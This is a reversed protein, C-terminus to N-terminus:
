RRRSMREILVSLIIVVGVATGQWFANVRLLNLGNNLIGILFVGILTGYLSGKGASSVPARRDRGRRDDSSWALAPTRTSREWNAPSFSPPWRASCGPSRTLCRRTSACMSAPSVRPRRTAASPTSSAVRSPAPSSSRASSSSCSSPSSTSRSVSAGRRAGLVPLRGAVGRDLGRGLHRLDSLEHHLAHRAHRHVAGISRLLRASRQGHRHRSWRHANSDARDRRKRGGGSTMLLGGAMASLAAIGGVSLDIGGTLIVFTQGIAIIGIATVQWLVNRLNGATLFNPSLVSLVVCLLLWRVSCRWSSVTRTSSGAGANAPQALDSRTESRLPDGRRDGSKAM